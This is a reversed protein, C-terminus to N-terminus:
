CCIIFLLKVQCTRLYILGVQGFDMPHGYILRCSHNFKIPLKFAYIYIYALGMSGDHSNLFSQIISDKGVNNLIILYKSRLFPVMICVGALKPCNQSRMNKSYKSVDFCIVSVNRSHHNMTMIGQLVCGFVLM